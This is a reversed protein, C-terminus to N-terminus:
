EQSSLLLLMGQFRRILRKPVHKNDKSWRLFFCFWNSPSLSLGKENLALVSSPRLGSRTFLSLSLGGFFFFFSVPRGTNGWSVLGGGVVSRPLTPDKVVEPRLDQRGCHPGPGCLCVRIPQSNNPIHLGNMGLLQKQYRQYM